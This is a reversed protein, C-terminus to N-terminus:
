QSKEKKLEASKSAQQKQLETPAIGKSKDGKPALSISAIPLKANGNVDSPKAFATNSRDQPTAHTSDLGVFEGKGASFRAAMAFRQVVYNPNDSAGGGGFFGTSEIQKRPPVNTGGALIRVTAKGDQTNGGPSSRFAVSANSNNTGGLYGAAEGDETTGGRIDTDNYRLTFQFEASDGTGQQELRLLTFTKEQDPHAAKKTVTKTTRTRTKSGKTIGTKEEEPVDITGKVGALGSYTVVEQDEVTTDAHDKLDEPDIGKIEAIEQLHTAAVGGTTPEQVPPDEAARAQRAALASQKISAWLGTLFGAGSIGASAWAAHASSVGADASKQAAATGLPSDADSRQVHSLPVHSNLTRLESSPSEGQSSMSDAQARASREFSDAPDSVNLGGGIPTGSVAGSSQQVVHTLEHTLLQQGSSTAPAYQGPAFVVHPGATYANAGMARASEGAAADSHVRVSSLDYGFQPEMMSRTASSLADGSGNIVDRVRGPASPDIGTGSADRQVCLNPGFSAQRRLLGSSDSTPAAATDTRSTKSADHRSM